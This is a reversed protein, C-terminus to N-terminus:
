VKAGFHGKLEFAQFASLMKESLYHGSEIVNAYLWLIQSGLHVNPSEGNMFDPLYVLFQGKRAYSDALIRSNTLQWGFADPIIVVVGKPALGEPPSAIYTQLGHLNRVVGVPNGSHLAGSICDKCGIGAM